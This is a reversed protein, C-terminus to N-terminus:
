SGLMRDFDDLMTQQKKRENETLPASTDFIVDSTKLEKMKTGLRSAANVKRTIKVLGASLATRWM